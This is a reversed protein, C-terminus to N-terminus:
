DSLSLTWTSVSTLLVDFADSVLNSLLEAVSLLINTVGRCTLDLNVLIPVELTEILDRVFSLHM